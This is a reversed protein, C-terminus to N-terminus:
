APFRRPRRSCRAGSRTPRTRRRSRGSGRWSACPSATGACAAGRARTSGRAGAGRSRAAYGRSCGVDARSGHWAHRVVVTELNSVGGRGATARRTPRRARPGPARVRARHDARRTRASRCARRAAASSFDPYRLKTTVTRASRGSRLPARRAARGHPRAGRAPAGPRGRRARLDGGPSSINEVPEGLQRPDIGLARDRLLRGVEGPPAGALEDDSLAALRGIHRRRRARPTGGGAPRRGAPRPGALPALFDAERGPPVLVVGGPKRRDSAVKAVVKCSGVGLSCTLGTAGRM